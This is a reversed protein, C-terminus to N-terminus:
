FLEFSFGGIARGPKTLLLRIQQMEGVPMLRASNPLYEEPRFERVAASNGQADELNLRIVPFAQPLTAQNALILTFEYGEIDSPAPQLNHSIIQIRSPVRFLPLRCGLSACTRELWPRLRENQALSPGEFRSLQWVLLIAMCAAGISWALRGSNPAQRPTPASANEPFIPAALTDLRTKPMRNGAAEFQGLKPIQRSLTTRVPAAKDTLTALANFSAQCELCFAEGNGQRLQTLTIRYVTKCSPCETHLRGLSQTEPASDPPPSAPEAPNPPVPRTGGRLNERKFRGGGRKERKAM